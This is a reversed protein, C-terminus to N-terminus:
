EGKNARTASPGASRPRKKAEASLQGEAFRCVNDRSYIAVRMTSNFFDPWLQDVYEQVRTQPFNHDRHNEQVYFWNLQHNHLFHCIERFDATAYIKFMQDGRQKTKHGASWAFYPWGLFIRRGAFSAPNFLYVNSLIKDEPRTNKRIWNVMSLGMQSSPWEYKYWHCDKWLILNDFIGGQITGIFVLSLLLYSGGRVVMWKFHRIQLAVKVLAAASFPLSLVLFFNFLKHQGAMERSFQFTNGIIFIILAPWWYRRWRQPAWWVGLPILILHMGLNKFWYDIFHGVTYPAHMLYFPHFLQKWIMTWWHKAQRGSFDLNAATHDGVFHFWFQNVLLLGGIALVGCLLIQRRHPGVIFFYILLVAFILVTPQHFVPMVSILLAWGLIEKYSPHAQTARSAMRYIFLLALALAYALHRQNNFLSFNWFATIESNNWPAFSIWERHQQFWAGISRWASLHYFSPNQKLFDLLVWAGHFFFFVVALMGVIRLHFFKRSFQYIMICLFLVGGTSLLNLVYDLRFGLKELLAVGWFYLYHYRIPEGTFLPYEVPYNYGESFSRILSIHSVFDSFNKPALLIQGWTGVQFSNAMVLWCFAVVLLWFSPWLAMKAFDPWAIKFSPWSQGTSEDAASLGERLFCLFRAAATAVLCQQGRRGLVQMRTTAANMPTPHRGWRGFWAQWSRLGQAVEQWVPQAQIWRRKFCWALCQRGGAVVHQWWRAFTSASVPTVVEDALPFIVEAKETALAAKLRSVFDAQEILAMTTANQGSLVVLKATPPLSRYLKKFDRWSRFEFWTPLPAAGEAAAALAAEDLVSPWFVRVAQCGQAAWTALMAQWYAQQEAMGSTPLFVIDFLQASSTDHEASLLDM